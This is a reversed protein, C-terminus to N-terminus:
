CQMGNDSNNVYKGDKSEHAKPVNGNRDIGLYGYGYASPYFPNKCRGKKFAQYNTHVRYKHEDEFEVIIDDCNNYEVIKMACGENSLSTEGTRDIKRSM